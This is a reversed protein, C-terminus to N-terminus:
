FKLLDAHKFIRNQQEKEEISALIKAVSRTILGFALIGIVSWQTVVLFTLFRGEKELYASQITDDGIM